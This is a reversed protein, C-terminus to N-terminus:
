NSIKSSSGLVLWLIPSREPEPWMKYPSSLIQDRESACSYLWMDRRVIEIMALLLKYGAIFHRYGLFKKNLFTRSYKPITFPPWFGVSTARCIFVGPRKNLILLECNDPDGFLKFFLGM